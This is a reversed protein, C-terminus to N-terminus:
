MGTSVYVDLTATGTETKAAFQLPTVGSQIGMTIDSNALVATCGNGLSGTPLAAAQAGEGVAFFATNPGENVVRITTGVRELSVSTGGSGTTASVRKGPAQASFLKDM